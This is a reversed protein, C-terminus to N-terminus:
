RPCFLSLAHVPSTNAWTLVHTLEPADNQIADRTLFHDLAKPLHCVDEPNSRVLRSLEKEVAQHYLRQLEFYFHYLNYDAM